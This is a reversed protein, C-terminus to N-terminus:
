QHVTISHPDNEDLCLSINNSLSETSPYYKKSFMNRDLSFAFMVAREPSSDVFIIWLVKFRNFINEEPLMWRFCVKSNVYLMFM